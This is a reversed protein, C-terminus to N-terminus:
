RLKYRISSQVIERHGACVNEVSDIDESNKSATLIPTMMMICVLIGVIKYKMKKKEGKQEKHMKTKIPIGGQM